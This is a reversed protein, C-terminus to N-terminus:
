SRGCGGVRRRHVREVAQAITVRKQELRRDSVSDHVGDGRRQAMRYQRRAYHRRARRAQEVSWLEGWRHISTTEDVREAASQQGNRNDHAVSAPV